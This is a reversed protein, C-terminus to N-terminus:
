SYVLIKDYDQRAKYANPPLSLIIILKTILTAFRFGILIRIINSLYMQTTPLCSVDARITNVHLMVSTKPLLGQYHYDSTVELEAESPTFILVMNTHKHM